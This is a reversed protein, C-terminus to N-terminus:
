KIEVSRIGTPAGSIQIRWEGEPVQEFILTQSSGRRGSIDAALGNVNSLVVSLSKQAATDAANEELSIIVTSVGRTEKLARILGRADLIKLEGAVAGHPTVGIFLILPLLLCLLYQTFRM